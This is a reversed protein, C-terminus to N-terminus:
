CHPSYPAYRIGRIHRLIERLMRRDSAIKYDKQLRLCTQFIWLIDRGIEKSMNYGLMSLAFSLLMNQGKDNVAEATFPLFCLSSQPRSSFLTCAM